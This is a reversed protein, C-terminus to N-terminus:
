PWLGGAAPPVPQQSAGGPLVWHTTGFRYRFEPGFSRVEADSLPQTSGNDLAIVESRIDPVELQYARTLSHLTNRAERRNNYFNVVVSLLPRADRTRTRFLDRLVRTLLM